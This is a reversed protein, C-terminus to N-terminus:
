PNGIAAADGFLLQAMYIRNKDRFIQALIDRTLDIRLQGDNSTLSFGTRDNAIEATYKDPLPKLWTLVQESAAVIGEPIHELSMNFAARLIKAEDEPKLTDLWQRIEESMQDLLDERQRLLERRCAIEHTAVEQRVELELRRQQSAQERALLAEARRTASATLESAKDKATTLIQEVEREQDAKIRTLIHQLAVVLEESVISIALRGLPLPLAPFLIM